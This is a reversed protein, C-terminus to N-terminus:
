GSISQRLQTLPKDATDLGDQFMSLLDRHAPSCVPLGTLTELVVV